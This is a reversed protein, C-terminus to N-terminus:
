PGATRSSRLLRSPSPATMSTASVIAHSILRRMARETCASLSPARPRASPSPAAIWTSVPSSSASTAAWIFWTTWRRRLASAALSSRLFDRRHTTM